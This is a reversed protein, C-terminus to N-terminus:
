DVTRSISEELGVLYFWRVCLAQKQPEFAANRAHFCFDEVGVAQKVHLLFFICTM